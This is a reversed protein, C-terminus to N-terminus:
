YGYINFLNLIEQKQYSKTNSLVQKYETLTSAYRFQAYIDRIPMATVRNIHRRIEADQSNRLVITKNIDKTDTLSYFLRLPMWTRYREDLFPRIFASERITVDDSLAVSIKKDNSIRYAVFNAWSEALGIVEAETWNPKTGDRYPDSDSTALINATEARVVREWFRFGAVYAHSVHALEHFTLTSLMEEFRVNRSKYDNHTLDGENFTLTVDPMSVLLRAVIDINAILMFWKLVDHVAIYLGFTKLMAASGRTSKGDKIWICTHSAIQAMGNNRAFENFHIVANHVVAKKWHDANKQIVFNKNNASKGSIEGLKNHNFNYFVGHLINEWYGYRIEAGSGSFLATIGVSTKYWSSRFYGKNDTTVHTWDFWSHVRVRMQKLANNEWGLSYDALTITGAPDYKPLWWWRTNRLTDQPMEANGTVILAYSEMEDEAEDERNPIYLEEVVEYPVDPLAHGVPLATYQYTFAPDSVAPDIYIQGDEAIEYDWPYTTLVVNEGHENAFDILAQLHADNEPKFKYYIKNTEIANRKQPAVRMAARRMMNVTYPNEKKKGLKMMLSSDIPPHQPTSPPAVPAPKSKKCAIFFLLFLALLTKGLIQSTKARIKITKIM